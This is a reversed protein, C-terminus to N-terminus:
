NFYPKIFKKFDNKQEILVRNNIEKEAVELNKDEKVENSVIEKNTVVVKNPTSKIEEKEEEKVPIEEQKEVNIIMNTSDEYKIKTFDTFSMKINDISITTSCNNQLAKFNAKVLTTKSNFGNFDTYAFINKNAMVGNQGELSVLSVCTNDLVNVNGQIGMLNSGKIDDLVIDLSFDSNPFVKNNGEVNLNANSTNVDTVYKPQSLASVSGVNLSLIMAPLIIYKGIEIKKVM